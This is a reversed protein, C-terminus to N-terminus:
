PQQILTNYGSIESSVNHCSLVAPDITGEAMFDWSSELNPVYSGSDDPFQLRDSNSETFASDDAFDFVFDQKWLDAMVLHTRAVVRLVQPSCPCQLYLHPRAALARLYIPWHIFPSALM